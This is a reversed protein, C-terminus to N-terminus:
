KLAAREYAAVEKYHGPPAQSSIRIPSFAAAPSPGHALGRPHQAAAGPHSCTVTDAPRKPTSSISPLSSLVVPTAGLLAQSRPKCLGRQSLQQSGVAELPGGRGGRNM